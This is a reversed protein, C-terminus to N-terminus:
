RPFLVGSMVDDTAYKFVSSSVLCKCEPSLNGCHRALQMAKGTAHATIIISRHSFSNVLNALVSCSMLRNGTALFCMQVVVIETYDQENFNRGQM